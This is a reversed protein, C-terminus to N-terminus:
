EGNEEVEITIEYGEEGNCVDLCEKCNEPTGSCSGGFSPPFCSGLVPGNIPHNSSIKVACGKDNRCTYICKDKGKQIEPPKIFEEKIIEPEPPKLNGDTISTTNKIFIPKRTPFTGEVEWPFVPPRSTLPQEPNGSCLGPYASSCSTGKPCESCPTGIKYM